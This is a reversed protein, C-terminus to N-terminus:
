NCLIWVGAPLKGHSLTEDILSIAGIFQRDLIGVNAQQIDTILPNPDGTFAHPLIGNLCRVGSEDGAPGVARGGCVLVAKDTDPEVRGVGAFAVDMTIGDFTGFAVQENAHIRVPVVLGLLEDGVAFGTLDFAIDIVLEGPGFADKLM